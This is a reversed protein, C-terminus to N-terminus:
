TAGISLAEAIEFRTESASGISRYRSVPLLDDPM